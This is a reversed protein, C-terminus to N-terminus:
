SSWTTVVSLVNFVFFRFWFKGREHVNEWCGSVIVTKLALKYNIFKIVYVLKIGSKMGTTNNPDM